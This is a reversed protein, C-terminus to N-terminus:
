FAEYRVGRRRLVRGTVLAHVLCLAAAVLLGFYARPQGALGAVLGGLSCLGLLLGALLQSAIFYRTLAGAGKWETALLRANRAVSARSPPLLDMSM